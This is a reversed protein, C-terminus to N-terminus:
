PHRLGLDAAAEEMGYSCLSSLFSLIRWISLGQQLKSLVCFQIQLFFEKLSFVPQPFLWIGWCPLAVGPKGPKTSLYLNPTSLDHFHAPTPPFLWHGSTLRLPVRSSLPCTQVPNRAQTCYFAPSLSFSGACLLCFTVEVNFGVDESQLAYRGVTTNCFLWCNYCCLKPSVLGWTCIPEPATLGVVRWQQWSWFSILFCVFKM